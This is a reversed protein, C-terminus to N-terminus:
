TYSEEKKHSIITKYLSPFNNRVISSLLFRIIKKRNVLSTDKRMLIKLALEYDGCWINHRATVVENYEIFEKVDNLIEVPVNGCNINERASDVFPPFKVPKKRRYASNVVNEYYIVEVDTSYAVPYKLAIRAWLDEDEGWWLHERFGGLELFTKKPVMICSTFFIYYGQKVISFYNPVLGAAPVLTKLESIGSINGCIEGLENRYATGYLGATPFEKILKSITNLYDPMWEDDADLFAIFNSKSERVGQNRANSVGTGEQHFLYIRSDSFSRVIELGNDVSGGDVIIIEFDQMTQNLVSDITRKIHPGKNYLPIVVSFLPTM